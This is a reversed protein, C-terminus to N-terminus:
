PSSSLSCHDRDELVLFLETCVPGRTRTKTSKQRLPSRAMNPRQLPQSSLVFLSFELYTCLALLDLRTAQIQDCELNQNGSKQGVNRSSIGVFAYRLNPLSHARHRGLAPDGNLWPGSSETVQLRPFTTFPLNGVPDVLIDRKAALTLKGQIRENQPRARLGARRSSKGWFICPCGRSLM